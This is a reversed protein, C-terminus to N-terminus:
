VSPKELSVDVADTYHSLGTLQGGFELRQRYVDRKALPLMRMM